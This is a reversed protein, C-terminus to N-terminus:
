IDNVGSNHCSPDVTTNSSQDLYNSVIKFKGNQYM